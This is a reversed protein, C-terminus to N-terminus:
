ETEGSDTDIKGKYKENELIQKITCLYVNKKCRHM